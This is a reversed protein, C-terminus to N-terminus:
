KGYPVFEGNKVVWLIYYSAKIDGREDFAIKGMACEFDMEHMKKAVKKGDATGTKEIATILINAADYGYVSYTGIEEHFRKKYGEIFPKASPVRAPDPGFTLLVGEADKGATKIFEKDITGDGSMFKANLGSQKMQVVLPGAQNYIGGFYVLEPGKDKMATIIARFDYEEKAVGGYYVVQLGLKEATKKFEDALGQGYTTKDHLVAVQKLKLEDKVFKAGVSGQQDDRGCVRFMYLYERDTVQPNTSAPTVAPIKADNYIESAPITCGSNFHGVVAVVKADTLERAVAVAVKPEGQDDRKVIEVQKGLVGGAANKQEVALIAGNLMDNGIKAYSGTLPAALGIRIKDSDAHSVATIGILALYPLFYKMNM